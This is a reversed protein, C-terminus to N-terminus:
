VADRVVDLAALAVVTQEVELREAAFDAVGVVLELACLEAIVFRLEHKGVIVFVFEGQADPAARELGRKEFFKQPEADFHQVAGFGGCQEGGHLVAFLVARARTGHVHAGALKVNEAGFFGDEGHAARRTDPEKVRVHGTQALEAGHLM